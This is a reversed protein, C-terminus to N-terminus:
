QGGMALNFVSFPEARKVPPCEAARVMRHFFPGSVLGFECWVRTRSRSIFAPDRPEIHRLEHLRKLSAKVEHEPQRLYVSIEGQALGPVSQVLKFVRTDLANM